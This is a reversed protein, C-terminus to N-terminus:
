KSKKNEKKEEKVDKTSNVVETMSALLGSVNQIESPVILKTSKGDALAKLAEFGQLTIYSANPKATNILEIARSEAEAKAIVAAKEAEAQLIKAEKDAEAQLIKAQKEGEAVLISSKKEGEAKM